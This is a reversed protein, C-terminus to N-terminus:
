RDAETWEGRWVTRSVVAAAEDREEAIRVEDRARQESPVTWTWGGDALRVGWESFHQKLAAHEARLADLEALVDALAGPSAVAAGMPTTRAVLERIEAEREATMRGAGQVLGASMPIGSEAIRAALSPDFTTM